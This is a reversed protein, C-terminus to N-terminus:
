HLWDSGSLTVPVSPSQRAFSLTPHHDNSNRVIVVKDIDPCLLTPPPPPPTVHPKHSPSQTSKIVVYLMCTELIIKGHIESKSLNVRTYISQVLFKSLLCRFIFIEFKKLIWRCIDLLATSLCPNKKRTSWNICLACNNNIVLVFTKNLLSTASSTSTNHTLRGM